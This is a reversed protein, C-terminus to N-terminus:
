RLRALEDNVIGVDLGDGEDDGLGAGVECAEDAVVSLVRLDRATELRLEWRCVQVAPRRDTCHLESDEGASADTEVHRYVVCRRVTVAGSPEQLSPPRNMAGSPVRRRNRLRRDRPSSTCCLNPNRRSRIRTPVSNSALRVANTGLNVCSPGATRVVNTRVGAWRSLSFSRIADAM